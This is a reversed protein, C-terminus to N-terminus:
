WGKGDIFTEIAAAALDMAAQSLHTQDTGSDFYMPSTPVGNGDLTLFDRWDLVNGPWRVLMEDRLAAEVSLDAQGFNVCAPLIVFRNHGLASIAAQYTDCYAAITTMGNHDGDWFVHTQNLLHVNAPDSVRDEIDEVTSGGVATSVMSRNMLTRLTAYLQVGSAGAMFSDGEGRLGDLRTYFAADSGDNVVTVRHVEGDGWAVAGGPIDNGLTLNSVGPLAGVGGGILPGDNLSARWGAALAAVEFKFNTAPAYAGLDYNIIAVGAKDAHFLLHGATTYRLYIRNIGNAYLQCATKEAGAATPTKGRVVMTLGNAQDFGKYPRAEKVSVNDITITGAPARYIYVHSAAGGAAFTVSKAGAGSSILGVLDNALSTSGLRSTGSATGVQYSLLYARSDQTVFQQAIGAGGQGVGVGADSILQAAQAVVAASSTGNLVSTWGALDTPFTGNSILETADPAVYPGISIVSGVKSGGIATLFATEDNFTQGDWRYRSAVYDADFSADTDWWVGGGKGLTTARLAPLLISL